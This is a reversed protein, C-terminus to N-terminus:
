KCGVSMLFDSKHEPTLVDWLLNSVRFIGDPCISAPGWKLLAEKSIEGKGVVKMENAEWAVVEVPVMESM